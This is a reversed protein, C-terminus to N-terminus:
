STLYDNLSEGSRGELLRIFRQALTVEEKDDREMIEALIPLTEPLLMLIEDSMNDFIEYATRLAATRVRLKSDRALILLYHNVRKWRTDKGLAKCLEVFTPVLYTQCFSSHGNGGNEPIPVIGNIRGNRIDHSIPKDTRSRKKSVEKVRAEASKSGVPLEFLSCMPRLVTELKDDDMFGDIDHACCQYLCSVIACRLSHQCSPLTSVEALSLQNHVVAEAQHELAVSDEKVRISHHRVAANSQVMEETIGHSAEDEHLRTTDREDEDSEESSNESASYTGNMAPASPKHKKNRKQPVEAPSFGAGGLEGLEVMMDQIFYGYFPVFISKACSTMVEIIRYFTLRRCLSAFCWRTEKEKRNEGELYTDHKGRTDFLEEQEAVAELEEDPACRWQLLRLFIPRLQAETLKLMLEVGCRVVKDEVRTVGSAGVENWRGRLWRYDFARFLFDFLQASRESIEKINMNELKTRLGDILTATGEASLKSATPYANILPLVLTRSPCTSCLGKFAERAVNRIDSCCHNLINPHLLVGLLRSIQSSLFRSLRHCLANAVTLVAQLLAYFPSSKDNAHSSPNVKMGRIITELISWLTPIVTPVHPIILVESSSGTHGFTLVASSFCQFLKTNELSCTSNELSQLVQEKASGTIFKAMCNIARKFAKARLKGFHSLLVDVSLVATQKNLFTEEEDEMMQCLDPLLDLYLSMEEETIPFSSLDEIPQASAASAGIFMEGLDGDDLSKGARQRVIRANLFSLSRRRIYPDDYQLLTHIVAVFGSVSLCTTLRELVGLTLRQEESLDGDQSQLVRLLQFIRQAIALQKVQVEDFHNTGEPVSSLKKLFDNKEFISNIFGLLSVTMSNQGRLEHIHHMWTSLFSADESEDEDWSQLFTSSGDESNLCISTSLLLSSLELHAVASMNQNYVSHLIGVITDAADTDALAVRRAYLMAVAACVTEAKSRDLASRQQQKGRSPREECAGTHGTISDSKAKSIQNILSLILTDRRHAPIEMITDIFLRMFDEVSLDAESGFMAVAPIVYELSRQLMSFTSTDDRGAGFSRLVNMIHKLVESPVVSALSALLMLGTNRMTPGYDNEVCKVATDVDFVTSYYAADTKDPNLKLNAIIVDTLLQIDSVLLHCCYEMDGIHETDEQSKKLKDVVDLQARLSGFLKSVVKEPQGVENSSNLSKNMLREAVTGFNDMAGDSNASSIEPSKRPSEMSSAVLESFISVQTLFRTPDRMARPSDLQWWEALLVFTDGCGPLSDLRKLCADLAPTAKFEMYIDLLRLVFYDAVTTHKRKLFQFIKSESRHSKSPSGKHGNQHVNANSNDGDESEALKNLPTRAALLWVWKDFGDLAVELIKSAPADQNDFQRLCRCLLGLISTIGSQLDRNASAALETSYSRAVVKLQTFCTGLLQNHSEKWLSPQTHLHGLLKEVIKTVQSFSDFDSYHSYVKVMNAALFPSKIVYNECLELMSNAETSEILGDKEYIAQADFSIEEDIQLVSRLLGVASKPLSKLTSLTQVFQLASKRVKSSHSGLQYVSCMVAQPILEEPLGTGNEYLCTNMIAACRTLSTSSVIPYRCSYLDTLVLWFTRSRLQRLVACVGNIGVSEFVEYPLRLMALCASLVAEYPTLDLFSGFTRAREIIDEFSHGEQEELHSSLLSVARGLSYVCAQITRRASASRFENCVGELDASYDWPWQERSVTTVIHTEVNESLSSIYGSNLFVSMKALVYRISNHKDSSLNSVSVGVARDIILRIASALGTRENKALSLLIQICRNRDIEDSAELDWVLNRALFDFLGGMEKTEIGKLNKECDEGFLPHKVESWCSLLHQSSILNPACCVFSIALGVLFDGMKNRLSAIKLLRCTAQLLMRVGKKIEEHGVSVLQPSHPDQLKRTAEFLNHALHRQRKRVINPENLGFCQSVTKGQNRVHRVFKSEETFCDPLCAIVRSCQVVVAVSDDLLQNVALEASRYLSCVLNDLTVFTDETNVNKSQSNEFENFRVLLQEVQRYLKEAAVIRVSQAGHSFSIFPPMCDASHPQSDNGHKTHREEGVFIDDICANLEQTSTFCEFCIQIARDVSEPYLNSVHRLLQATLKRSSESSDTYLECAEKVFEIVMPETLEVRSILRLVTERCTEDKETMTPLASVLLSLLFCTVSGSEAVTELDKVVNHSALLRRIMPLDDLVPYSVATNVSAASVSGRSAASGNPDAASFAGLYSQNEFLAVLTRMGHIPRVDLVNDVICKVLADFGHRRLVAKSSIQCVIVMSSLQFEENSRNALGKVVTPLLDALVSQADDALSLAHTVVASFLSIAPSTDFEPEAARLVLNAFFQRLASDKLFQQVLIQRELPVRERKVGQLFEWETRQIQAIQIFRAFLHTDHYPLICEMLGRVNYVHIKFLRILYEFVKQTAKMLVYPSLLQLFQDLAKDIKKENDSKSEKERDFRKLNANFLTEGYPRLRKDLRCLEQFGSRGMDMITDTGIEEAKKDDFLLSARGRRSKQESQLTELQRQLQTSM